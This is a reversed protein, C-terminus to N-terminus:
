TPLDGLQERLRKLVRSKAVRVNGTNMGLLSAVEAASLGNVAIEWFASWTRDAFDKRIMEIARRFLAHEERLEDEDRVLKDDDDAMEALRSRAESGGMAFVHNENRRFYDCVKNRTVTRLWGRFTDTDREIQFKSINRVVSRFVDQAVDSCEQVPLGARRCWYFILPSYLDVLEEWASDDDGKLRAILSHPTSGKLRPCETKPKDM